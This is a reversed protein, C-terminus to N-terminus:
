HLRRMLSTSVGNQFAPGARDVLELWEDDARLAASASEFAALEPVGTLWGVAAYTGAVPAVFMTQYGTIRSSAEALEVGLGLADRMSGHACVARKVQVFAPPPDTPVGHLVESVTDIRPGAFLEDHGAVWDSYEASAALADDAELLAELRAGPNTWLLTGSEDTFLAVWVSIPLGIIESGRSAAEIAM